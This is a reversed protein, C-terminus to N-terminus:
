PCPVLSRKAIAKLMANNLAVQDAEAQSVFSYSTETVTINAIDAGPACRSTYTQESTFAPVPFAIYGLDRLTSTIPQSFNFRM